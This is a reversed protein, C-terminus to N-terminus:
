LRKAAPPCTAAQKLGAVEDPTLRRYQGPALGALTLFALGTRRLRLVPHGIAECMRRVQRNKGEHIILSIEATRGDSRELSVKAPATIGEALPVGRRLKDLEAETPVGGVLAYYHKNVTHKPHTLAFALAGDNTLLLLGETDYDLRGVPYVRERGAPLLDLVTPRNFQDRATTIYGAPKNMLYYVKDAAPVVRKGAVTVVDQEPDVKVGPETVVRGNVTVEGAAIMEECKRRAAVGAAAMFKQLREL